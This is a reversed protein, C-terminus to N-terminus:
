EIFPKFSRYNESLSENINHLVLFLMRKELFFGVRRARNERTRLGYSVAAAEDRKAESM